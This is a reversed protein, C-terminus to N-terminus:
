GKVEDDTELTKNPVAVPTSVGATGGFINNVATRIIEPYAFLHLKILSVLLIMHMTIQVLGMFRFATVDLILILFGLLFLLILYLAPFAMLRLPVSFGSHLLLGYTKGISRYNERKEPDGITRYRKHLWSRVIGPQIMWALFIILSVQFAFVTLAQLPWQSNLLNALGFFSFVSLALSLWGCFWSVGLREPGYLALRLKTDRGTPESSALNNGSSDSAILITVEEGQPKPAYLGRSFEIALEEGPALTVPDSTWDLNSYLWRPTEDIRISVSEASNNRLFCAQPEEFFHISNKDIGVPAGTRNSLSANLPCAHIRAPVSTPWANRVHVRCFSSTHCNPCLSVGIYEKLAIGGCCMCQVAGHEKFTRSNPDIPCFTWQCVGREVERIKSDM